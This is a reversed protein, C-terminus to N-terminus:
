SEYEYRSIHQDDDDYVDFGADDFDYRGALRFHHPNWKGRSPQASEFYIAVTNVLAVRRLEPERGEGGTIWIRRLVMGPQVYRKLQALNRPRPATM